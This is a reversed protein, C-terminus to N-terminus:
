GEMCSNYLSELLFKKSINYERLINNSRSRYRNELIKILKFGRKSLEMGNMESYYEEELERTKTDFKELNKKAKIHRLKLNEM